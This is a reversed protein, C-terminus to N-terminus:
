TILIQRQKLLNRPPNRISFKAFDAAVRQYVGRKFPVIHTVADRLTAWEWRDFEPNETELNILSDAGYLRFAFWRQAQGRYM